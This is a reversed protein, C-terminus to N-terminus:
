ADQQIVSLEENTFFDGRHSEIFSKVIDNHKSKDPENELLDLLVKGAMFGFAGIRQYDSNDKLEM